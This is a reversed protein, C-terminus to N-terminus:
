GLGRKSLGHPATVPLSAMRVLPRRTRPLLPVASPVARSRLSSLPTCWRPAAISLGACHAAFWSPRGSAVFCQPAGSPLPCAAAACRYTPLRCLPEKLRRCACPHALLTVAATPSDTISATTSWLMAVVVSGFSEITWYVAWGVPDGYGRSKSPPLSCMAHPTPHGICVVLPPKPGRYRSTRLSM